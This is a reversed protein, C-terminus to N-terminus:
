NIKIQKLKNERMRYQQIMSIMGYFENFVALITEPKPFHLIYAATADYPVPRAVNTPEYVRATNQFPRAASPSSHRTIQPERPRFKRKGKKM